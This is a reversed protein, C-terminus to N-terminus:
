NNFLYVIYIWLSQITVCLFNPSYICGTEMTQKILMRVNDCFITLLEQLKISNFVEIILFM